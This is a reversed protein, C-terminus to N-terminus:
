MGQLPCQTRWPTGVHQPIKKRGAWFDMSISRNREHLCRFQCVNKTIISTAAAPRCTSSVSVERLVRRGCAGEARSSRDKNAPQILLDDDEHRRRRAEHNLEWWTGSRVDDLVEHGQRQM